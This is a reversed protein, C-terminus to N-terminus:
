LGDVLECVASDKPLRERIKTLLFDAAGKLFWCGNEEVRRALSGAWHALVILAAANNHAILEHFEDAAGSLWTAMASFTLEDSEFGAACSDILKAIALRVVTVAQLDEPGQSRGLPGAMRTPLSSIRDLLCALLPDRDAQDVEMLDAARDISDQKGIKDKPVLGRISLTLSELTGSQIKHSFLIHACSIVSALQDLVEQRPTPKGQLMTLRPTTVVELSDTSWACTTQQRALHAQLGEQYKKFLGLSREHHATATCTAHAITAKHSAAVALLGAMLWEQQLAQAVFEHHWYLPNEPDVAPLSLSTDQLFYHLYGLHHLDIVPVLAIPTAAVDSIQPSQAIEDTNVAEVSRPPDLPISTVPGKVEFYRIKTGRFFTQLSVPRVMCAAGDTESGAM